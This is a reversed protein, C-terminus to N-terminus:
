RKFLLDYYLKRADKAEERRGLKELCEIKRLHRSLDDTELDILKNYCELAEEYKGMEELYKARYDNYYTFKPELIILKDYCELAEENKGCKKLYYAKNFYLSYKPEIEILKDYCEIVLGYQKLNKLCDLKGTYYSTDNPKLEILIDYIEIAEDYRKLEKFFEAKGLLSNKKYFTSPAIKIKQDYCNIAEESKGLKKLCETKYEWGTFCKENLKILRDCCKMAKYYCFMEKEPNDLEGYCEAKLIWPSYNLNDLVIAKNCSNIAEPYKEMANLTLAKFYYADSSPKYKILNDLCEIRKDYEDNEFFNLIQTFSDNSKDDTDIDCHHCFNEDYAVGSSPYLIGADPYPENYSKERKPCKRADDDELEFFIEYNDSAEEYKELKELCEAKILYIPKFKLSTPFTNQTEKPIITKWKASINPLSDYITPKYDKFLNNMSDDDPKDIKTDLIDLVKEYSECRLLLEIKGYWYYISKPNSEKANNLYSLEKEFINSSNDNSLNEDKNDKGLLHLYLAFIWYKGTTKDLKILKELVEDDFGFATYFIENVREGNENVISFHPEFFYILNNKLKKAYNERTLLKRGCKCRDENFYTTECKPCYMIKDNEAGCYPCFELNDDFTKNCNSCNM